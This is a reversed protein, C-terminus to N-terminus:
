TSWETKGSRRVVLVPIHMARAVAIVEPDASEVPHPKKNKGKSETEAEERPFAVVLRVGDLMEVPRQYEGSLHVADDQTCAAVDALGIHQACRGVSLDFGYLGGRVPRYMRAERLMEMIIYMWDIDVYWTRNM